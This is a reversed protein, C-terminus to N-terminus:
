GRIAPFIGHRIYQVYTRTYLRSILFYFFDSYASTVSQFNLATFIRYM